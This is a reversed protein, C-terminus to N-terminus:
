EVSRKKTEDDPQAPPGKRFFGSRGSNGVV